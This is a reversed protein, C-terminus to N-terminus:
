QSARVYLEGTFTLEVYKMKGHMETQVADSVELENVHRTVTSKSRDIADALEPLMASGDSEALITLIANATEPVQITLDPLDTRLVQGDIDSFRIVESFSELHNLVAIVLSLYIGRPGGGFIAILEDDTSQIIDSCLFVSKRLDQHNVFETLLTVNPEIEHLMRRVDEVAESSRNDDEAADPLLLVVKDGSELGQSLVPRTVRASDYGIPSLYTTM